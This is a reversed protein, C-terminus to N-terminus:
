QNELRARKRPPEDTYEILSSTKSVADAILKNVVSSPKFSRSHDGEIIYLTAQPYRKAETLILGLPVNEDDKAAIIDFHLSSAKAQPYPKSKFYSLQNKQINRNHLRLSTALLLDERLEPNMVPCILVIFRPAAIEQLISLTLFGGSSCGILGVNGNYVAHLQQFFDKIDKVSADFSTKSFDLTFVDLNCNKSISKAQDSNWTEDGKVFCGGHILLAAAGSNAPYKKFAVRFKDVSLEPTKRKKSEPAPTPQAHTQFLTATSQTNKRPNSM